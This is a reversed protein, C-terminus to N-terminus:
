VAWTKKRGLEKWEGAVKGLRVEWGGGVFRSPPENVWTTWVSLRVVALDPSPREISEIVVHHAMEVPKGSVTLPKGPPPRRCASNPTVLEPRPDLARLVALEEDQVDDMSRPPGNGPVKMIGICNIVLSGDGWEKEDLFATYAAVRVAREDGITGERSTTPHSCAIVALAAAGLVSRTGMREGDPIQLRPMLRRGLSVRSDFLRDDAPDLAAVREEVSGGDRPQM